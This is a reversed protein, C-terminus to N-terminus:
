NKEASVVKLIKLDKTREYCFSQKVLDLPVFDISLIVGESSILDSKLHELLTVFYDFAPAVTDIVDLSFIFRKEVSFLFIKPKFPRCCIVKKVTEIIGDTLDFDYIVDAGIVSDVVNNFQDDNFAKLDLVASSIDVEYSLNRAFNNQITKMLIDLDTAVIRKVGCLSAVISVLGVGSGIELAFKQQM